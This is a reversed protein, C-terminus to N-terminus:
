GTARISRTYGFIGNTIILPFAAVIGATSLVGLHWMESVGVAQVGLANGIQMGVLYVMSRPLFQLPDSATVISTYISVSAMGMCLGSAFIPLGALLFSGSALCLALVGLSVLLGAASPSPIREM